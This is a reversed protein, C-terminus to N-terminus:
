IDLCNWAQRLPLLNHMAEVENRASRAFEVVRILEKRFLRREVNFVADSLSSPDGPVVVLDYISAHDKGPFRRLVRGRRQIFQRPNTTSAAIIATQM